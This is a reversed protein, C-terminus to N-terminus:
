IFDARLRSDGHKVKNKYYIFVHAACLIPVAWKPAPVLAPQGLAEARCNNQWAELCRDKTMCARRGQRLVRLVAALVALQLAVVRGVGGGRGAERRQLRDGGSSGRPGVVWGLWVAVAAAAVRRARQLVQRRWLARRQLRRRQRADCGLRREQVTKVRQAWGRRVGADAVVETRQRWGGGPMRRLRAARPPAALPALGM